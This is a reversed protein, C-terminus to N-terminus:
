FEMRIITCFDVAEGDVSAPIWRPLLRAAQAVARDYEPSLSEVVRIDRTWGEKDIILQVGVAGSKKATTGDAPLQTNATMYEALRRGEIAFRPAKDARRYLPEGQWEQLTSVACPTVTAKSNKLLSKADKTLYHSLEDASMVIDMPEDSFSMMTGLLRVGGEALCADSVLLSTFAGEGVLVPLKLVSSEIGYSMKDKRLLDNRRLVRLGVLDYTVLMSVASAARSSALGPRCSGNVSFTVYRGPVHELLKLKLDVYCFMRDDPLTAFPGEHVSGFSDKFAKYSADFDGSQMGFLHKILYTSLPLMEAKDIVVPWEMDADIVNVEDGNSYVQHEKVYRVCYDEGTQAPLREAVMLLCCVIILIITRKM